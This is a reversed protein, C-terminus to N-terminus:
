LDTGNLNDGLRKGDFKAALALGSGDPLLADVTQLTDRYKWDKRAVNACHANLFAIHTPTRSQARDAIWYITEAMSTAAVKYGLIDTTELRRTPGVQPRRFPIVAREIAM